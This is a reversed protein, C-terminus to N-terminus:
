PRATHANILDRRSDKEDETIGHKWSIGIKPRVGPIFKVGFGRQPSSYTKILESYVLIQADARPICPCDFTTPLDYIFTDKGSANTVTIGNDISKILGRIVPKLKIMAREASTLMAAATVESNSM